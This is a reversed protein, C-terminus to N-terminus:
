KEQSVREALSALSAQGLGRNMNQPDKPDEAWVRFVVHRPDGPQFALPLPMRLVGPADETGSSLVADKLVPQWNVEQALEDWMLHNLEIAQDVVAWDLQRIHIDRPTTNIVDVVPSIGIDTRVAEWAHGVAVIDGIYIRDHTWYFPPLGGANHGTVMGTVPSNTCFGIHAIQGPAVSASASAYTLEIRNGDVVSM